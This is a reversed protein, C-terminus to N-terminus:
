PRILELRYRARDAASTLTSVADRSLARFPRAPALLARLMRGWAEFVAQQSQTSVAAAFLEVKPRVVHNVHDKYLTLLGPRDLGCVEITKRGQDTLGFPQWREQGQVKIRRFEIHLTPDLAPDSPDILLPLEAGPPAQEAVLVQDGPARPFQNRKYERNCDICSFLLNEWTWTLWWYVSRPRYHEVDRYKAQEEPKECYCCKIHQMRALQPKVLDYADFVVPKDAALSARARALREARVARLEPPETGRTIRIM